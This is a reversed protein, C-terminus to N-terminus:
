PGGVPRVQSDAEANRCLLSNPRCPVTNLLQPIDMTLRVTPGHFRGRLWSPSTFRTFGLDSSSDPGHSLSQAGVPIYVVVYIFQLQPVPVQVVAYWPCRGGLAFQLQSIEITWRQVTPIPRQSVFPIDVVVSSGCSRLSRPKRLRFKLGGHVPTFMYGTNIWCSSLVSTFWSAM